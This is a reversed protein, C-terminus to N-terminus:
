QNRAHMGFYRNKAIRPAIPLRAMTRMAFPTRGQAHQACGPLSDQAQAQASCGRASKSGPNRHCRRKICSEVPLTEYPVNSSGHIVPM